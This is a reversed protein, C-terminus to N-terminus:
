RQRVLSGEGEEPNPYAVTPFDGDPLAQLKVVVPPKFGLHALLATAFRLGVGHMPTYVFQACKANLEKPNFSCRKAADAKYLELTKEVMPEIKRKVRQEFGDFFEGIDALALSEKIEDRIEKDVPATIQAGNGWYVKYGNDQKPNHSATVMIGALCNYKLTSYSLIPTAVLDDFLLSKIGYLQFVADSLHAFGKSNHRGDYGIM